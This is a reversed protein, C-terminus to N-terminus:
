PHVDCTLGKPISMARGVLSHAGQRCGLLLPTPIVRRLCMVHTRKCGVLFPTGHATHVTERLFVRESGSM